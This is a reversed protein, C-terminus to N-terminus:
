VGLPIIANLYQARVTNGTFQINFFGLDLLREEALIAPIEGQKWLKVLTDAQNILAIFSSM